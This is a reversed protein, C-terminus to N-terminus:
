ESPSTIYSIKVHFFAYSAADIPSSSRSLSVDDGDLIEASTFSISGSVSLTIWRQRSFSGAFRGADASCTAAALALSM